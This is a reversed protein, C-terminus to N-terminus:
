ICKARYTPRPLAEPGKCHVDGNTRDSGKISAKKHIDAAASFVLNHMDGKRRSEELNEKHNVRFEEHKAKAAGANQPTYPAQKVMTILRRSWRKTLQQETNAVMELCEHTPLDADKFVERAAPYFYVLRGGLRLLRAAMDILDHLCEELTYPATSPIHNERMTDPIVYPEATGNLLKRGGSKRGGARVGYPPDCIVADLIEHLDSRWPPSNNDARLLGVPAPLDYQSFNSWVNCGPGRGDRVVRIDIDAGLTHAGFHAAAVLVSGTGAFPDYVLTGARAQAQNAMLLAMEADMATPGLYSRRRLEYKAVISRDSCAVQRAFFIHHPPLPPLGSNAVERVEIVWFVNAPSRLDVPGQMPLFSFKHIRELQEEMSLVCGFGDVVFKFSDEARCFPVMKERPYQQVATVLEEYTAGDGWVEYLGRMTMSRSAIIRAAEDSPLDVFHIPSDPHDGPLQRWQLPKTIGALGALAEIEAVRFDLHRHVFYCLYWM